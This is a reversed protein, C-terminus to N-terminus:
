LITSSELTGNSVYASHLSHSLRLAEALVELSFRTATGLSSGAKDTDRLSIPIEREQWKRAWEESDKYTKYTTKFNREPILAWKPCATYYVHM